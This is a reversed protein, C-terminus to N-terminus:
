VELAEIRRGISSLTLIGFGIGCEGITVLSGGRKQTGSRAIMIRLSGDGCELPEFKTVGWNFAPSAARLAGTGPRLLARGKLM